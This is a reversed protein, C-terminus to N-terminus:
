SSILLAYARYEKETKNNKSLNCSQCAVALNSYYHSGGRSLPTKHELHDKSFPVPKLCLYCTLTGFFKINDEYVRQIIEATMTGKAGHERALRRQDRARMMLINTKRYEKYERYRRVKNKEHWKKKAIKYKEKAVWPHKKKYEKQQALLVDRNELYRKKFYAKFYEKHEARYKKHYEPNYASM